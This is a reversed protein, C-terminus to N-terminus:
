LIVNKREEECLIIFKGEYKGAFYSRAKTFSTTEISDFYCGEANILQYKKM